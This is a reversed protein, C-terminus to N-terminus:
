SKFSFVQNNLFIMCRYLILIELLYFCFFSQYFMQKLKKLKPLVSDHEFSIKHLTEIKQNLLLLSLFSHLCDPDITASSTIQNTSNNVNVIAVPNPSTVKM